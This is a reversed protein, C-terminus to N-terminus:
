DPYFEFVILFNCTSDTKVPFFELAQPAKLAIKTTLVRKDDGAKITLQFGPPQFGEVRALVLDGAGADVYISFAALSLNPTPSGTSQRRILEAISLTGDAKTIHFAETSIPLPTPSPKAKRTMEDAQAIGKDYVEARWALGFVVFAVLAAVGLFRGFSKM